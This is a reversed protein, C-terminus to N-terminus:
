GYNKFEGHYKDVAECYVKYADEPCDFYGLHKQRGEFGVWARYKNHHNSWHVGKLDTSCGKFKARNMCNTARCSPRLNVWRNDDKVGNIHDVEKPIVEGMFIFALRHQKFSKGCLQIERYGSKTTFGAPNSLDRKYKKFKWWLHGTEPDYSLNDWLYSLYPEDMCSM